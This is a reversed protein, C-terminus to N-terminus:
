IWRRTNNKYATYAQPFKNILVSEEFHIYWRDTLITIIIVIILPSLSGLLISIGFLAACFGLYMPNRSYKFLGDTVLKDPQNFTKINTGVEKFKEKGIIAVALGGMLPLIGLYNYPFSILELLPFFINLALMLVISMYFLQPPLIKKM